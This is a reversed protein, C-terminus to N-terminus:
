SLFLWSLLTEGVCFEHRIEPCRVATVFHTLAIVTCLMFYFCPLHVFNCATKQKISTILLICFSSMHFITLDCTVSFVVFASYFM